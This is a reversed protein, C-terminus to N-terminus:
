NQIFNDFETQSCLVNPSVHFAKKDATVIRFKQITSNYSLVNCKHYENDHYNLYYGFSGILSKKKEITEEPVDVSRRKRIKSQDNADNQLSQVNKPTMIQDPNPSTPIFNNPTSFKHNLKQSAPASKENPKNEGQFKCMSRFHDEAMEFRKTQLRMRTM